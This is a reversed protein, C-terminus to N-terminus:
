RDEAASSDVAETRKGAPARQPQMRHMGFSLATIPQEALQRTCLVAPVSLNVLSLGGSHDALALLGAGSCLAAASIAAEHLTLKLVLQFGAPQESSSM